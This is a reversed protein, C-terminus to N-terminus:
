WWPTARSLSNRTVKDGSFARADKATFGAVLLALIFIVVQRIGAGGTHSGHFTALRM